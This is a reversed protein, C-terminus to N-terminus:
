IREGLWRDLKLAVANAVAMEDMGPAAYVNITPSGAGVLEKLKNVGIVLEGGNGDGFGKLGGATPIVTPSTFLVPNDYAQKYWQVNFSPLRGKGGIGWPAAGGDVKVHPVKLTPLSWSFNFLGKIRSVIGSITGTLGDVASTAVRPLSWSFNFFGKITNVV